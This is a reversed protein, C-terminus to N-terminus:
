RLRYRAYYSKEGYRNTFTEDVTEIDHEKRLEFIVAALRTIGLDAFAEYSSISGFQQMYQLVRKKQTM